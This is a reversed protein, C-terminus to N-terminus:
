ASSACTRSGPPWGQLDGAFRETYAAYGLMDPRQFWDPEVHRRLDLLRLDAPRALFGATAIALARGCVEDARDEGYAEALGARLDPLHRRARALFVTRDAVPEGAVV